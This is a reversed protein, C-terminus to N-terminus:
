TLPFSSFYSFSCFFFLSANGTHTVAIMKWNILLTNWPQFLRTFVDFEFVSVQLYYNSLYRLLLSFRSARPTGFHPDSLWFVLDQHYSPILSKCTAACVMDNHTLDITSKLAMAEYSSTIPHVLSLATRFDKWLVITRFHVHPNAHTYARWSPSGRHISRLRNM